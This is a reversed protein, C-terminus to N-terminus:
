DEWYSTHFVTGSVIVLAAILSAIVLSPPTFTTSLPVVEPASQPTKEGEMIWTITSQSSNPALVNLKASDVGLQKSMITMPKTAIRCQWRHESEGGSVFFYVLFPRKYYERSRM